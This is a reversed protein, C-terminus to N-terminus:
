LGLKKKKANNVVENRDFFVCCVYRDSCINLAISVVRIEYTKRTLASYITRAHAYASVFVSSVFASM